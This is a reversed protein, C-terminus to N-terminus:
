EIVQAAQLLVSPPITIGLAQAVGSNVIFEYKRPEEVPLEAPRAGRIIRDVYVASQRVTEGTNPGYSMLGGAEAYDRMGFTTPIRNRRAFEVIHKRERFTLPDAHLGIAHARWELAAGLGAHIDEPTRVNIRRLELSLARAVAYIINPTFEAGSVTRM